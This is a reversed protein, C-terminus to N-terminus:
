PKNKASIASTLKMSLPTWLAVTISWVLLNERGGSHVDVHKWVTLLFLCIVFASIGSGILNRKRVEGLNNEERSVAWAGALTGILWVFLFGPNTLANLISEFWGISAADLSEILPKALLTTIARLVIASGLIFALNLALLIGTKRNM